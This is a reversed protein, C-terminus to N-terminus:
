CFSPKVAIPDPGGIQQVTPADPENWRFLTIHWLGPRRRSPDILGVFGLARLRDAAQWPPPEGGDRMATQWPQRAMEYIDKAHSGRLDFLECPDVTYRLMVRALDSSRM